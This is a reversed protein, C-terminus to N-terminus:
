VNRTMLRLPLHAVLWFERLEQRNESSVLKGSQCTEEKKKGTGQSGGCAEKEESEEGGAKGGCNMLAVASWEMLRAIMKRSDWGVCVFLVGGMCGM